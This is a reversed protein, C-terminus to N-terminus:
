PLDPDNDCRKKTVIITLVIAGVMMTVHFTAYIALAM